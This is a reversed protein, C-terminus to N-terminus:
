AAHRAIFDRVSSIMLGVQGSDYESYNGHAANNRLDLWATISKQDLMAYVGAKCLDANMKTAKVPKGSSETAVGHKNCLKRIHSELTSGAIVAAADKYGQKVLHDAMELYDAFIDAHIVEALSQTYGKRIDSLLSQCVGVVAALEIHENLGRISSAHQYYTSGKGSAREIAAICSTFLRQHVTNSMDSGDDYGCKGMQTEYDIIASQIQAEFPNPM